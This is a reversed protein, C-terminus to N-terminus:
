NGRLRQIAGPVYEMEHCFYLMIAIKRCRWSSHPRGNTKYPNHSARPRTSHRGSLGAQADCTSLPSSIPGSRLAWTAVVSIGRCWRSAGDKLREKLAHMVFRRPVLLDVLRNAHLRVRQLFYRVEDPEVVRGDAHDGFPSCLRLFVLSSSRFM